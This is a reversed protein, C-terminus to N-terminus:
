IIKIDMKEIEISVFSKRYPYAANICNDSIGFQSHVHGFILFRPKKKNTLALLHKSGIPGYTNSEPDENIISYSGSDMIGYPPEHTVLITKSNIKKKLKKLDKIHRKEDRDLQTWRYGVM